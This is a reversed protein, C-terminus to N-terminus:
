ECQSSSATQRLWEQQSSMYPNYGWFTSIVEEVTYQPAESFLMERYKKDLIYPGFVLADRPPVVHLESESVAEAARRHMEDTPVLVVGFLTGRYLKRYGTCLMDVKKPPNYGSRYQVSPYTKIFPTVQFGVAVCQDIFTTRDNHCDDYVDSFVLINGSSSEQAVRVGKTFVYGCRRKFVEFVVNDITGYVFDDALAHCVQRVLPMNLTRSIGLSAFAQQASKFDQPHPLM